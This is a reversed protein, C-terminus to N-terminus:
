AVATGLNASPGRKVMAGLVAEVTTPSVDPVDRSVSPIRILAELRAVDDVKASVALSIGCLVIFAIRSKMYAEKVM